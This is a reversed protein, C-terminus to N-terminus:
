PYASYWFPYESLSAVLGARLPNECIYRAVIALDDDSRIHREFYSPAWVRGARRGEAGNATRASASKVRNVVSALCNNEGLQVLWHAHDPMLVWALATADGWLATSHFCQAVASATNGIFHPIHEVTASTLHYAHHPVSCRHRRLAAHGPPPPPHTM